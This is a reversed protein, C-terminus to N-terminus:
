RRGGESKGCGEISGGDSRYYMDWGPGGVGPEVRVEHWGGDLQRLLQLETRTFAEVLLASLVSAADVFM